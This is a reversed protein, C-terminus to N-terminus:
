ESLPNTVTENVLPLTIIEEPPEFDTACALAVAEDQLVGDGSVGVAGVLKGDKYLPVGGGFLVVGAGEQRNTNHIGPLGGLEPPVAELVGIGRSSLANQNSSFGLATFAKARAIDRSGLLASDDEDAGVDWLGYFESPKARPMIVIQMVVKGGCFRFGSAVTGVGARCNMEIKKFDDNSLTPLDYYAGYGYRHPKVSRDKGDAQLLATEECDGHCESSALLLQILLLVRRM